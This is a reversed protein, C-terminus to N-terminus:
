SIWIVLSIHMAHHMKAITSDSYTIILIKDPDLQVTRIYTALSGLRM